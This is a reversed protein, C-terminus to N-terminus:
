SHNDEDSGSLENEENPVCGVRGRMTVSIIVTVTWQSKNQRNM